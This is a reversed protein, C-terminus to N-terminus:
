ELDLMKRLAQFLDLGEESSFYNELELSINGNLPVKALLTKNEALNAWAEKGHSKLVIYKEEIAKAIVNKFEFDESGLIEIVQEPNEKSQQIAYWKVEKPSLDGVDIGKMVRVLAQLVDFDSNEVLTRAEFEVKEYDIEIEADKEKDIREFTIGYLPHHDLFAQLNPKMGSVHLMGDEIVINDVKAEGEQEDVFITDHTKSYRIRRPKGNHNIVLPENGSNNGPIVISAPSSGITRYIADKM